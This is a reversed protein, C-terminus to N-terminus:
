MKCNGALCFSGWIKMGKEGNSNRAEKANEVTIFGKNPTM